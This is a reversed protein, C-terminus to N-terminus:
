ERPWRREHERRTKAHRVPPPRDGASQQLVAGGDHYALFVLLCQGPGVIMQSTLAEGPHAALRARLVRRLLGRTRLRAITLTDQCWAYRCAVAFAAISPQGAARATQRGSWRVHRLGGALCTRSGGNQVATGHDAQCGLVRGLPVSQAVAPCAVGTTRKLANSPTWAGPVAPTWVGAAVATESNRAQWRAVAIVDSLVGKGVLQPDAGPGIITVQGTPRAWCVVANTVGNISALPDAAHVAEPQVRATM